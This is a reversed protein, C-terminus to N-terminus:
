KEGAPQGPAPFVASALCSAASRLATRRVFSSHSQARPELGQSSDALLLHLAFEPPEGLLDQAEPQADHEVEPEPRPDFTVLDM